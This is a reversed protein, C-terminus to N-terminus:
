AAHLVSMQEVSDDENCESAEGEEVFGSSTQPSLRNQVQPSPSGESGGYDLGNGDFNIGTIVCQACTREGGSGTSTLTIGRENHISNSYSNTNGGVISHDGGTITMNNCKRFMDINTANRQPPRQLAFISSAVIDSINGELTIPRDNHTSNSYRNKNGGVIEYLGGVLTNNNSKNFMTIFTQDQSWIHELTDIQLDSGMHGGRVVLNRENHTSKSYRNNNGLIFQCQPNDLTMNNSETFM